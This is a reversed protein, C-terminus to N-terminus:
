VRILVVYELVIFIKKTTAIVELIEVVNKHKIKSLIGIEKKVQAFMNSQEIGNKDLVKLARYSSDATDIAFYVKGFSGKGLIKKVSYKGIMKCDDGNNTSM